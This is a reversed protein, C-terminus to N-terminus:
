AGLRALRDRHHKLVIESICAVEDEAAGGGDVADSVLAGQRGAFDTGHTVHNISPVRGGRAIRLVRNCQVVGGVENGGGSALSRM